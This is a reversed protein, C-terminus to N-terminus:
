AGRRRRKAAREFKAILTELREAKAVFLGQTTAGAHAQADQWAIHAQGRLAMIVDELESPTLRDDSSGNKTM